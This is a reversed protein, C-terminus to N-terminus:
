LLIEIGEKRIIQLLPSLEDSLFKKMGVTYPEIRTDVQRTVGWARAKEKISEGDFMESIILVDIDSDDNAKNTAYSGYMFAKNISIGSESLASIYKRVTDLAERQSM